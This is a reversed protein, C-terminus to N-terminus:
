TISKEYIEHLKYGLKDISIPSKYKKEEILPTFIKMFENLIDLLEIIESSLFETEQLEFRDTDLHASYKIRVAKIRKLINQNSKKNIRKKLNELDTNQNNKLEYNIYKQISYKEPNHFLKYLEIITFHFIYYKIRNFFIQNQDILAAKIINLGYESLYKNDSYAFLINHYTQKVSIFEQKTIRNM